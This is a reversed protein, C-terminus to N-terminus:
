ATRTLANSPTVSTRFISLGIGATPSFALDMIESRKAHNALFGAYYNSDPNTASANQGAGFGDITQKTDTWNISVNTQAVANRALAAVIFAATAVVTFLVRITM